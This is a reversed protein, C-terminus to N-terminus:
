GGAQRIEDTRRAVALLVAGLRLPLPEDSEWLNRWTLYPEEPDAGFLQLMADAGVSELRVALDGLDAAPVASAELRWATGAPADDRVRLTLGTAPVPVAQSLGGNFALTAAVSVNDPTTIVLMTPPM